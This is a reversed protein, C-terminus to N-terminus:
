QALGPHNHHHLFQHFSQLVRLFGAETGNQGGGVGCATRISVRAAATPLWRRVSQAIARGNWFSIGVRLHNEHGSSLPNRMQRAVAVGNLKCFGCVCVCVLLLLKRQQIAGVSLM